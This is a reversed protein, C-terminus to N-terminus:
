NIAGDLAAIFELIDAPNQLTGGAGAPGAIGQKEITVISTNGASLQISSSSQPELTFNSLVTEITIM